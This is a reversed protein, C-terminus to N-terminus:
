VRRGAGVSVMFMMTAAVIISPGGPTDWRLSGWLGAVVAVM